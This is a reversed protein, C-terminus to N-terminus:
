SIIASVAIGVTVPYCVQFLQEKPGIRAHVVQWSASGASDLDM